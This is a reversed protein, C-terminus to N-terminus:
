PKVLYGIIPLQTNAVPTLNNKLIDEALTLENEPVRTYHLHIFGAFENLFLMVEKRPNTGKGAKENLYDAYRSIINKTKGVYFIYSHDKLGGCYPGVVFMYIGSIEPLPPPTTEFKVIEWQRGTYYSALEESKWLQPYLRFKYEGEKKAKIAALLKEGTPAEGYRPM